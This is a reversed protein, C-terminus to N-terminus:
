RRRFVGRRSVSRQSYAFGPGSTHVSNRQVRPGGGGRVFIHHYARGDAGAVTAAGAHSYSDWKCCAQFGWSPELAGCGAADCQTGPPLFAFDGMGGGVHGAIRFTARYRAASEAAAQLGPDPRFPPLGRAARDANVRPLADDGSAPSMPLALAATTIVLRFM